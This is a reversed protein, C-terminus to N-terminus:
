PSTTAGTLYVNGEDDVAVASAWDMGSGGLYRSSTLVPDITLPRRPDHAGVAFGIEHRGLLLYRCPVLVRRRGAQQYAVPRAQRIATERSQVLLNGRSDLRLQVAGDLSLRVQALAAGPALQLDYELDGGAGHYLVDVGPYVQRYAVRAYTPVAS